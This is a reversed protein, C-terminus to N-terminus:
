LGCLHETGTRPLVRLESDFLFDGTTLDFDSLTGHLVDSIRSPAPVTDIGIRPTDFFM